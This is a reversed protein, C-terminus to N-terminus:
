ERKLYKTWSEYINKHTTLLKNIKKEALAEPSGPTPMGPAWNPDDPDVQSGAHPAFLQPEEEMAGKGHMKAVELVQDVLIKYCDNIYKDFYSAFKLNDQIRDLEYEMPITLLITGKLHPQPSVEVDVALIDLNFETYPMKAWSKNEALPLRM